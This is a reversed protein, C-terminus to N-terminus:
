ELLGDPTRMNPFLDTEEFLLRIDAILDPHQTKLAKLKDKCNEDEWVKCIKERIALREQLDCHNREYVRLCSDAPAM